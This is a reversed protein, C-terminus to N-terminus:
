NSGVTQARIINFNILRTNIRGTTTTIVIKVQQWNGSQQQSVAEVQYTIVPTALSDSLINIGPDSTIVYSLVDEGSDLYETYNETFNNIDGIYMTHTSCADPANPSQRYFTNYRWARLNNGSGMNMRNPYPVEQLREMSSMGSASSMTSSAQLALAQPIDKGFDACLFVALQTEIFLNYQPPVNTYDGLDPNQTFNYSTCINRGCFIYMMSELRALATQLDFGTPGVTLGNIRLWSYAGNILDGKTSAAM